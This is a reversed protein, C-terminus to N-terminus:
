GGSENYFIKITYKWEALFEESLRIIQNHLIDIKNIDFKEASWVFRYSISAFRFIEKEVGPAIKLIRDNIRREYIEIDKRPTKETSIEINLSKYMKNKGIGQKWQLRQGGM